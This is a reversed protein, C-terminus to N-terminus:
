LKKQIILPIVELFLDKSFNLIWILIGKIVDWSKNPKNIEENLQELKSKGEEDVTKSILDRMTYNIKISVDNENKNFIVIGSNQSNNEKGFRYEEELRNIVRGLQTRVITSPFKDQWDPVRESDPVKYLTYDTETIETLRDLVTNFQNVIFQDVLSDIQPLPIQSLMGKIDGYSSRIKTLKIEGM